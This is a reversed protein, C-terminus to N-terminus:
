GTKLISAPERVGVEGVPRLGLGPKMLRAVLGLGQTARVRKALRDERGCRLERESRDQQVSGSVMIDAKM